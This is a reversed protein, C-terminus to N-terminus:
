NLLKYDTDFPRKKPKDGGEGGDEDRNNWHGM